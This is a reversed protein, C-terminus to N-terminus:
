HFTLRSRHVTTDTEGSHKTPPMLIRWYNNGAYGLIRVVRKAGSLHHYTARKPLERPVFEPEEEFPLGMQNPNPPKRKGM